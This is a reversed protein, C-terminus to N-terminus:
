YRVEFGRLEEDPELEEVKVRSVQALPPGIALWSVLRDVQAADGSILAEVSGNPLNRVWGKVGYKLAEEQTYGRFFVGQVRGTVIVRITKQAM